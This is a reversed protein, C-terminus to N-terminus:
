ASTSPSSTAIPRYCEVQVQEGKALSVVDDPMILFGDARTLASLQSARGPVRRAVWGDERRELSVQVVDFRGVASSIGADLEALVTPLGHPVRGGLRQVIAGGILRMVVLAAHPNGPLGIIMTDSAEGLVTPKGPKIALGHCWVGPPGLREVVEVTVDRTGVSSGASIVLVDADQIAERCVAELPDPDDSVIGHFRPEGGLEAVLAALAPGNADRVQGPALDGVSGPVVEDGTSIISVLPRAFVKVQALGAAAFIGVDQPRIVSGATAVVEGREVDDSEGVVGDGVAAARTVEIKTPEVRTTDEVMVIADAQAPLAGGTPIEVAGGPTVSMTAARGMEVAGIVDLTVPRGETAGVTDVARVAFGDVASRKFGPLAHRAVVDQSLVRGGALEVDVAQRGVTRGSNFQTLADHVTRAQFPDSM